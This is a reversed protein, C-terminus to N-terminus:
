CLCGSFLSALRSLAQELVLDNVKVAAGPVASAVEASDAPGARMPLSRSDLCVLSTPKDVFRRLPQSSSGPPM